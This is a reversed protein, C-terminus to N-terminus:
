GNTVDQMYQLHDTLASQTASDALRISILRVPQCNQIARGAQNRYPPFLGRRGKSLSLVGSLRRQDKYKAWRRWECNVM